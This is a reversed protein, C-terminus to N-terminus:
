TIYSSYSLFAMSDPKIALLFFKKFPQLGMEKSGLTTRIGLAEEIIWVKIIQM